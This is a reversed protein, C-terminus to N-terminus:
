YKNISRNYIVFINIIFKHKKNVELYNRIGEINKRVPFYSTGINSTSNSSENTSNSTKNNNSNNSGSNDNTNNDKSFSRSRKRPKGDILEEIKRRCAEKRKQEPSEM